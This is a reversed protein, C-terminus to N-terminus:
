ENDEKFYNIIINLVPKKFVFKILPLLLKILSTNGEIVGNCKFDAKEFNGEIQIKGPLYVSLMGIVGLVGGTTSPDSFGIVGGINCKKVGVAKILDKVLKIILPILQSINYYEWKEKINEYFVKIRKVPNIKKPKKKKKTKKIKKPKPKEEVPEFDCSNKEETNKEEQINENEEVNIDKELDPSEAKKKEKVPKDKELLKNELGFPLKVKFSLDGNKVNVSLKVLGFLWKLRFVM